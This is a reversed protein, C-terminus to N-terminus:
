LPQMLLQQRDRVLATLTKILPALSPALEEEQWEEVTWAAVVREIEVSQQVLADDFAILANLLSVEQRLRWWFKDQAPAAMGRIDAELGRLREALRTLSRLKEMAEAPPFPQERTVAPLFAHRYEAELTQLHRAAESLSSGARQRVLLDDARALNAKDYFNYGGGSFLVQLRQVVPNQSPHDSMPFNKASHRRDKPPQFRLLLTVFDAKASESKRFRRLCTEHKQQQPKL